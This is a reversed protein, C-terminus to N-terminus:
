PQAEEDRAPKERTATERTATERGATPASRGGSEVTDEDAVPPAPVFRVRDIRAGDVREVRLIGQEIPVEDGVEPLRDLQDTVFGGITDYEADDPVTVGGMELLEDP